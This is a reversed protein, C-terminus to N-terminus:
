FSCSQLFSFALFYIHLKLNNVGYLLTASDLIFMPDKTCKWITFFIDGLRFALYAAAIASKYLLVVYCLVLITNEVSGWRRFISGGILHTLMFFSMESNGPLLRVLSLEWVVWRYSYGHGFTECLNSNWYKSIIKDCIEITYQFVIFLM